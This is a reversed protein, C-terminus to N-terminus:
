WRRGGGRAGSEGGTLAYGTLAPQCMMTDYLGGVRSRVRLGGSDGGPALLQLNDSTPPLQTIFSQLRDSRLGNAELLHENVVSGNDAGGGGWGRREFWRMRV